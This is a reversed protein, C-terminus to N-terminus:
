RPRLAALRPPPTRDPSRWQEAALAPLPVAAVAIPTPRPLRPVAIVLLGMVLGGALEALPAALTFREGDPDLRESLRLAFLPFRYAALVHDHYRPTGPPEVHPAVALGSGALTAGAVALLFVPVALVKM